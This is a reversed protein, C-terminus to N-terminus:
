EAGARAADRRDHMLRLEEPPDGRLLWGQGRREVIEADALEGLATSVSPRRAGVLKGLTEHTLELPLTVGEPGVRGWRDALHWFLVLLRVKVGTICTIALSFALAHVRATTRAIVEHVISPWRCMLEATRRDLLAIRTPELIHWQVEYPMPAQEGFHEWPRLVDGGGVLEACTTQAVVTERAMLGDLVLLGLHRNPEPIEKLPEWSGPPITAASVVIERASALEDSTLDRGLDRDVELLRVSTRDQLVPSCM